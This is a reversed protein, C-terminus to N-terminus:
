RGNGHSSWGAAERLGAMYGVSHLRGWWEAGPESVVEGYLIPAHDTRIVGSYAVEVYARMCELMDTPGEDVFTEVFSDPRGIVDRFHAFGIRDEAGFRRIVAPVDDTMLAVNGQCVTVSNSPSPVLDIVRQLDDITSVIRDIGPLHGVPPDDPHIALRVGAEEAIPVVRQLFYALNRRLEDAGIPPGDYSSTWSSLDFATQPASGRGPQTRGTRIVGVIPMWAYCVTSIGLRGLARVYRAYHEIAEERGPRGLQIDEMPPTDEM